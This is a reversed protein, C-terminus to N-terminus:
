AVDDQLLRASVIMFLGSEARAADASSAKKRPLDIGTPWPLNEGHLRASIMQTPPIASEDHAFPM